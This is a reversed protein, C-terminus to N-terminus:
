EERACWLIGVPSRALQKRTAFHKAVTTTVEKLSISGVLGSAIPLWSPLFSGVLPQILGAISFALAPGHISLERKLTDNMIEFQEQHRNLAIELNSDVQATIQDLQDLPAASLSSLNSGITARLDNLFGLRRLRILSDIPVNSLWNLNKSLLANTLPLETLLQEGTAQQILSSNAKLKTLLWHFSTPAQIVPHSNLQTSSELLDNAQMMRGVIFLWIRGGGKLGDPLEDHDWDRMFEMETAELQTLPDKNVTSDLIFLDPRAVENAIEINSKFTGFYESAEVENDLNKGFLLNTVSIADAIYQPRLSALSPDGRLLYEEAILVAIPPYVNALYVDRQTVLSICYKLCYYDRTKLPGKTTLARLVPDAVLVSDYYIGLREFLKQSPQPGIDGGFRAKLGPLRRTEELVASNNEVWFDRVRIDIEPMMYQNFSHRRKENSLFDRAILGPEVNNKVAENALHGFEKALWDFYPRLLECFPNLKM